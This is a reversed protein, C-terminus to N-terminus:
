QALHQTWRNIKEQLQELGFPKTLYDDMGANLCREREGEIAHATLAIIPLNDFRAESRIQRTAEYGDMEPMSVDMFVLDIVHKASKLTQLAIEASEATIVDVGLMKLLESGSFRNLEVDDVLLAKVKNQRRRIEPLTTCTTPSETSDAHLLFELSFFFCSGAGPKSNLKRTGGMQNVLKHSIALGLGSGGYRRRTSNDAQSFPHFVSQQQQEPIGIGTDIVRFKLAVTNEPLHTGTMDEIILTVSGKDTFKIANHLLNLLVQKLRMADGTLLKGSLSTHNRIYLPLQKNKAKETLLQGIEQLTKDLEFPNKELSFEDSGMRGLDLIKNILDM